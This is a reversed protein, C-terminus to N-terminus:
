AGPVHRRKSASAHSARSQRKQCHRQQGWPASLCEFHTGPPPRAGCALSRGASCSTLCSRLDRSFCAKRWEQRGAAWQKGSRGCTPGLGLILGPTMTRNRPPPTSMAAVPPAADAAADAAPAALARGM